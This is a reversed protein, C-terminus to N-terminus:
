SGIDPRAEDRRYTALIANTQTDRVVNFFQGCGRAHSWREARPGRVNKRMYLYDAWAADSCDSAPRTLHAEGGYRFEIEARSGCYPCTILLM